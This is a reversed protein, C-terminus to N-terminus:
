HCYLQIIFMADTMGLDIAKKWDICAKAKDGSSYHTLARNYYLEANSPNLTIAKTYDEIAGNYDKMGDKAYARYQYIIFDDTKLKLANDFNEVANKYDAVKAKEIGQQIFVGATTIAFQCYAFNSLLIICIFLPRNKIM